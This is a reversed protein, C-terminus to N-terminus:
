NRFDAKTVAAFMRGGEDSNTGSSCRRTSSNGARCLEYSASGGLVVGDFDALLRRCTRAERKLVNASLARASKLDNAGLKSLFDAKGASAKAPWDVARGHAGSENATKQPGSAAAARPSSARSCVRRRPSSSCASPSAARRSASSRRLAPDGGFKCHQGEGM